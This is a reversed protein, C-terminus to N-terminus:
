GKGEGRSNGCREQSSAAVEGSLWDGWPCRYEHSVSVGPVGAGGPVGTSQSM